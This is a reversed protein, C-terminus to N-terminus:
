SYDASSPGAFDTTEARWQYVDRASFNRAGRRLTPMQRRTNGELRSSPKACRDRHRHASAPTNDSLHFIPLGDAAGKRTCPCKNSRKPELPEGSISEKHPVAVDLHHLHADVVTEIPAAVAVAVSRRLKPSIREREAGRGARPQCTVGTM